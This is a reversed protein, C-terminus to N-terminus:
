VPSDEKQLQTLNACLRLLFRYFQLREEPSFGSLEQSEIQSRISQFATQRTRGLETLTIRVARKDGPVSARTILGDGEMKDLLRSITAPEIGCLAALEKQLCGGHLMLFDLIKPQGPSLGVEALRPRLASSQTQHARLLAITFPPNM